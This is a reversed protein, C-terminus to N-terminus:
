SIADLLDGLGDCVELALRFNCMLEFTLKLIYGLYERLPFRM